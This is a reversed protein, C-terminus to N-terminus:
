SSKEPGYLRKEISGCYNELADLRKVLKTILPVLHQAKKDDLLIDCHKCFQEQVYLREMFGITKDYPVFVDGCLKCRKTLM